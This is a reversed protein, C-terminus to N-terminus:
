EKDFYNEYIIEDNACDYIDLFLTQGDESPLSTTIIFLNGLDPHKLTLIEVGGSPITEREIELRKDM